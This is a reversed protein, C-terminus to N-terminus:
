VERPADFPERILSLLEEASLAGTGDADELLSTALARKTEHLQVIKEEITERTVMRYITVPRTQGMRHARDSAQDEVAPNWWPDLLVVYDAATLNIGVGGAKLSILFVPCEGEQFRKILRKRKAASTKGTLMLYNIGAEKLRAEILNLHKVFQSFLLVQHEGEALLTDLLELLQEHKTSPIDSEPVVLAPACCALRLRMLEALLQFRRQGTSETDENLSTMANQRVAEYLAREEESLEVYLISETRPPLETLVDEKKRRL